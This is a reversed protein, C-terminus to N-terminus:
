AILRRRSDTSRHKPDLGDLERLPDAPLAPDLVRGSLRPGAGRQPHPRPRPDPLGHGLGSQGPDPRICDCRAMEHSDIRDGRTPRHHRPHQCDHRHRQDRRQGCREPLPLHAARGLFARLLRAKESITQGALAQQYKAKDAEPTPSPQAGVTESLDKPEAKNDRAAPSKKETKSAKPRISTKDPQGAKTAAKAPKKEQGFGAAAIM